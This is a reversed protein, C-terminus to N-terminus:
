LPLVGPVTTMWVGDDGADAGGGGTEIAVVMVLWAVEEELELELEMTELEPFLLLVIMTFSPFGQGGMTGSGAAKGKNPEASIPMAKFRRMALFFAAYVRRM